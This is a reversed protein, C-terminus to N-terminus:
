KLMDECYERLLYYASTHFKGGDDAKLLEQKLQRLVADVGKFKEELTELQKEYSYVNERLQMRYNELAEKIDELDYSYTQYFCTEKPMFNWTKARRPDDAKMYHETTYCKLWDENYSTKSNSYYLTLRYQGARGYSEMHYKAGTFNKSMNAFPTGDKKTIIQVNEWAELRAKSDNLRSEMEKKIEEYNRLM